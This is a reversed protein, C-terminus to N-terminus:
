KKIKQFLFAKNPKIHVEPGKIFNKRILTCHKYILEAKLIIPSQNRILQLSHSRLIPVNNSILAILKYIHGKLMEGTYQLNSSLNAQYSHFNANPLADHGRSGGFSFNQNM